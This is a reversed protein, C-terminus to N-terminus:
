ATQAQYAIHVLCIYQAWFHKAGKQEQTSKEKHSDSGDVQARICVHTLAGPHRQSPPGRVDTNFSFLTCAYKGPM